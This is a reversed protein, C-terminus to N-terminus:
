DADKGLWRVGLYCFPTDCLAFLVKFGWYPLVLSFVFATTFKPTLHWFALYEFVCTDVFQSIITAVNNRIWLRGGRTAKRLLFFLRVDLNQSIFFSVLSAITMRLTSGFVSEYAAQNDWTENPRLRICLLTSALLLVLMIESCAVFLSAREEGHVEGVIDTILFMFPMFFIGVSVRVGGLSTIKTGLTNAMVMFTVYACLLLLEKKSTRM